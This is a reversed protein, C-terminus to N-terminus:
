LTLLSMKPGAKTMMMRLTLYSKTTKLERKEQAVVRRKRKM